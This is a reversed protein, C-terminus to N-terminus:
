SLFRFLLLWNFSEGPIQVIIRECFKGIKRLLSIAAPEAKILAPGPLDLGLYARGKYNHAYMVMVSAKCRVEVVLGHLMKLLDLKGDSEDIIVKKQQLLEVDSYSCILGKLFSVYSTFKYGCGINCQEFAVLNRLISETAENIHLQPIKLVKKKSGEVSIKLWDDEDEIGEIEVGDGVLLMACRELKKVKEDNGHKEPLSYSQHVIQLIHRFGIDVLTKSHFDHGKRLFYLVHFAIDNHDIHLYTQSFIISCLKEVIFFPLQNELLMLDRRVLPLKDQIMSDEEANLDKVVLELIFCGDLLMMEALEFAEYELQKAYISRVGVYLTLISNCCKEIVSAADNTRALLDRLYRWKHEEM